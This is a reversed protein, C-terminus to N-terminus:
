EAARLVLLSCGASVTGSDLLEIRAGAFQSAAAKAANITGSLGAAIHVSVVDRGEAVLPRYADEFMAATPQSTTPLTKGERMRRYFEDRSLDVNDRYRQEGFIVFLPVVTIGRRATTAPDLDSTSDTVVAVRPESM